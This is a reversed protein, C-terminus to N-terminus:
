NVEKKANLEGIKRKKVTNVIFVMLFAACISGAADICIDLFRCARGPVFYQHLEDSVAYVVSFLVSFVYNLYRKKNNYTIAVGTSLLGLIFYETFHATKRVILTITHIINNQQQTSIKNFDRYIIDIIKLVFKSSTQTSQTAPQSSMMFIFVVWSVLFVVLITRILITKNM